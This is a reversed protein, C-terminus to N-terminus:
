PRGSCPLISVCITSETPTGVVNPARWLCDAQWKLAAGGFHSAGVRYARQSLVHPKTAKRGRKHTPIGIEPQSLYVQTNAPIDAYYEIHAAALQSRLWFSRGYLGDCAVAAFPMDRAQARQILEWGLEPKTQFIREEGIGMAKRLEAHADDFWKEPIFLEGDIWCNM